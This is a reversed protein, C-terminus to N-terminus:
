RRRHETRLAYFRALAERDCDRIADYLDRQAIPAWLLHHFQLGEADLYVFDNINGDLVRCDALNESVLVDGHLVSLFTEGVFDPTAANSKKWYIEFVEAEDTWSTAVKM